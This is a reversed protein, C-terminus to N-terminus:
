LKFLGKSQNQFFITLRIEAKISDQQFECILIYYKAPTLTHLFHHKTLLLQCRVISIKNFPLLLYLFLVVFINGKSNSGTDIQGIVVAYFLEPVFISM